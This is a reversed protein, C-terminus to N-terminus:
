CTAKRRTTDRDMLRDAPRPSLDSRRRWRRPAWVWGSSRTPAAPICVATAPWSFGCYHCRYANAAVHLTLSIDCNVPLAPRQRLGSGSLQCLGAPKLVAADTRGGLTRGRGPQARRSLAGPVRTPRQMTALGSRIEPPAARRRPALGAGGRRVNYYSQLSPTASGAPWPRTAAGARCPGARQLPGGETTPPMMAGRSFSSASATSLAFVSVPRLRANKQRLIRTWQDSARRPARQAVGGRVGLCLARSRRETQSHPRDRAGPGALHRCGGGRGGSAHVETQRQRAGKPFTRFGKGLSSTVNV